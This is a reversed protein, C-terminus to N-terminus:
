PSTVQPEAKAMPPNPVASQPRKMLLILVLAIALLALSILFLFVYPPWFDREFMAPLYLRTVLGHVGVAFSALIGLLVGFHRTGWYETLVILAAASLGGAGAGVGIAFALNDVVLNGSGAAVVCAFQAVMTGILVRRGGFRDALVGTGLLVLAGLLYAAIPEDYFPFASYVKRLPFVIHWNTWYGPTFLALVLVSAQLGSAAILLLYSRSRLISRLPPSPEPVPPVTPKQEVAAGLDHETSFGEGRTSERHLLRRRWVLYVLISGIALLIAIDILQFVQPVGRVDPWVGRTYDYPFLWYGIRGFRIFPLLPALTVGALLVALAKGRNRSFLFIVAKAFGILLSGALIGEIVLWALYLLWIEGTFNAAAFVIAAGVVIPLITIAPGFRDVLFGVVPALILIMGIRLNIDANSPFGEQGGRVISRDLEMWLGFLAGVQARAAVALLFFGVLVIWWGRYIRKPNAWRKLFDEFWDRDSDPQNQMPAGTM